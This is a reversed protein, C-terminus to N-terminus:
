RDLQDALGNDSWYQRLARIRGDVVENVSIGHTVVRRGTPEVRRGDPLTVPRAQTGSWTWEVVVTGGDVAAPTMRNEIDDFPEHRARLMAVVDERGEADGRPTRAAADPAYCDALEDWRHAAAALAARRVLALPDDVDPDM